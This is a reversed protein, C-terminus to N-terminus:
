PLGLPGVHLSMQIKGKHTSFSSFMKPFLAEM